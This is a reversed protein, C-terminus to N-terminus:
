GNMGPERVMRPPQAPNLSQLVKHIPGLVPHWKEGDDYTCEPGPLQTSASAHAVAHAHSRLCTSCPRKADSIITHSIISLACTSIRPGNRCVRTLYFDLSSNARVLKRRRCQHCAQLGKIECIILLVLDPLRAQNRKLVIPQSSHSTSCPTVSAGPANSTDNSVKPMLSSRFFRSSAYILAISLESLRPVTLNLATNDGHVVNSTCCHVTYGKCLDTRFPM